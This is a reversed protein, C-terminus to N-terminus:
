YPICLVAVALLGVFCALAVLAIVGEPRLRKKEKPTEPDM